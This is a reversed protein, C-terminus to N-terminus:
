RGKPHSGKIKNPVQGACITDLGRISNFLFGTLNLMLNKLKSVMIVMIVLIPYVLSHPLVEPQIWRWPQAPSQMVPIGYYEEVAEEEQVQAPQRIEPGAM